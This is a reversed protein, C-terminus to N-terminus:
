RTERTMTVDVDYVGATPQTEAIGVVAVEDMGGDPSRYLCHTGVLSRMQGITMEGDIGYLRVSVSISTTRTPGFDVSQEARSDLSRSEQEQDISRSEGGIVLPAYFSEGGISWAAGMADEERAVSAVDSGDYAYVDYGGRMPYPVDFAKGSGSAVGEVERINGDHVVWLRAGSGDVTATLANGSKSFTVPVSGSAAVIPVSDNRSPFSAMQATGSSYTLALAEGESPVGVMNAQPVHVTGSSEGSHRYSSHLQSSSEISLASLDWNSEYPVDIGLPSWSATDFAVDPECYVTLLSDTAASHVNMPYTGTNDTSVCRASVQWQAAVLEDMDMDVHLMDPVTATGGSVEAFSVEWASWDSWEGWSGDPAMQRSRLRHEFHAPGSGGWSSPVDWCVDFDGSEGDMLSPSGKVRVNAPIPLYPDQLDTPYLAFKQANSHNATWIEINTSNTTKAGTVDMLCTNQNGAGFEVVACTKGDVTTTGYHTVAWRQARSNNDSYQQVNTGSTTAKGGAVDLFLNSNINRISHGDGEDYIAFKQANSGNSTYLQVNAGSATKGGQVDVCMKTDLMSRIEYVMGDVFAPVPVFAWRQNDGTGNAALAVNSGSATGSAQMSLTQAAKPRVYFTPYSTGDITATSGSDVMVWSQARGNNRKWQQVNTGASFTGGKVDVAKGSYRSVIEKGGDSATQVRYVQANGNNRSWLQVNAGDKATGGAVDLRVATNAVCYVWYTGNSLSAM